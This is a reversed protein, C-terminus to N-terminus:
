SLRTLESDFLKVKELLIEEFIPRLQTYKTRLGLWEFHNEQQGAEGATEERGGEVVRTGEEIRAQLVERLQQPRRAPDMRKFADLDLHFLHAIQTVTPNNHDFDYNHLIASFALSLDQEVSAEGM